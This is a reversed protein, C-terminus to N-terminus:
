RSRREKKGAVKLLRRGTSPDYGAAADGILLAYHDRESAIVVGTIGAGALDRRLDSVAQSVVNTVVVRQGWAARILEQTQVFEGQRKNMAEILRFQVTNGLTCVAGNHEVQFTARLVRFEGEGGDRAPAATEPQKLTAPGPPLDLHRVWRFLTGFVCKINSAQTGLDHLVTPCVEGPFWAELRAMNPIRAGPECFHLEVVWVPDRSKAGPTVARTRDGSQVIQLPPRPFGLTAALRASEHLLSSFGPLRHHADNEAIRHIIEGILGRLRLASGTLHAPPSPLAKLQQLADRKVDIIAPDFDAM